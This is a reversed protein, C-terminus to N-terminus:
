SMDALPRLKKGPAPPLPSGARVRAKSSGGTVGRQQQQQQKVAKAAAAAAEHIPALLGAARKGLLAGVSMQVVGAAAGGGKRAVEALVATEAAFAAAAVPALVATRAATVGRQQAQVEALEPSYWKMTAAAAEKPDRAVAQLYRLYGRLSQRQEASSSSSPEYLECTADRESQLLQQRKASAEQAATAVAALRRAEPRNGAGAQQALVVSVGAISGVLM